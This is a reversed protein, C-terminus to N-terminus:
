DTGAQQRDRDAWFQDMQKQDLKLMETTSQIIYNEPMLETMGNEDMFVHVVHPFLDPGLPIAANPNHILFVGEHWICAATKTHFGSWSPQSCGSAPREAM